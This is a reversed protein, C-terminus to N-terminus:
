SCMSSCDEEQGNYVGGINLVLRPRQIEVSTVKWKAGMWRVYKLKYLNEYAFSDAVISISNNVSLDDNLYESSDWRRINRIVDGTYSKEIAKPTYVGPSTQKTDVFGIKGCFKTM